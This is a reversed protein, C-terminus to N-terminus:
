SLRLTTLCTPDQAGTGTRVSGTRGDITATLEVQRGAPLWLGVFGNDQTRTTEQLLTEGSVADKVVVDVERNAQEGRCGVPAHAFCEHTTTRYPAVSLYFSDKPLPLEVESGTRSDKLVVSTAGVSAALGQPREDVPIAELREVLQRGDLNTLGHDSLVSPATAGPAVGQNGGGDAGGQTGPQTSSVGGTGSTSETAPTAGTCATLALGAVALASLFPATRRITRM